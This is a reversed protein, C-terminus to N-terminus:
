TLHKKYILKCIYEMVELHNRAEEVDKGWVTIGHNYLIFGPVPKPTKKLYITIDDGVRAVDQWNAVIPFEADQGEQFGMAKLIERWKVPLTRTESPHGYIESLVVAYVPHVHFVAGATPVARYIAQHIPTEYSPKLTLTPGGSVGAPSSTSPTTAPSSTSPTAAPSSATKTMGAPRLGPDVNDKVNIFHDPRLYGKNLGSPTILIELPDSKLRVSLNGGTGEMWGRSYFQYGFEVLTQAPSAHQTKPIADHM